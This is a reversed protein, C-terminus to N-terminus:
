LGMNEYIYCTEIHLENNEVKSIYDKYDDRM